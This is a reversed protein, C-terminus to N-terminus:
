RYWRLADTSHTSRLVLGTLLFDVVLLLGVPLLLADPLASTLRQVLPHLVPLLFVSLVGM